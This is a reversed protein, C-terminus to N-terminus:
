PHPESTRACIIERRPDWADRRSDTFMMEKAKLCLEESEFPVQAVSVGCGSGGSGMAGCAAIVIIM